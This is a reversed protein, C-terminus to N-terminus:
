LGGNPKKGNFYIIEELRTIREGRKDGQAELRDGDSRYFRHQTQTDIKDRIKALDTHYDDISGRIRAHETRMLILEENYSSIISFASTVDQELGSVNITDLKYMAQAYGYIAFGGQTLIVLMLSWFLRKLGTLGRLDQEALALRKDINTLLDMENEM